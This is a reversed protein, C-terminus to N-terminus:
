DDLIGRAAALGSEIANLATRPEDAVVDGVAFLGPQSDVRFGEGVSVGVQALADMGLAQLDVGQPGSHVEVERRRLRLRVPAELSLRFSRGGKREEGSLFRVGGGVLGGVALIVHRFEHESLEAGDASFDGECFWSGTKFRVATARGTVFQISSSRLLRARSEVFREGAASGPESLTEGIPRELQQQIRQVGQQSAGLWPGCLFGSYRSPTESLQRLLEVGARGEELERTWDLDSFGAAASALDEPLAVPVPDFLTRTRKAWPSAQFSRALSAADWGSRAVDAVGVVLGALPQLDLVANDVGRTPRVVGSTTGVWAGGLPLRAGLQLLFREAMASVPTPDQRDEWEECDYAGSCFESAGGRCDLLCVDRGAEALAWAAAVGSFGGGIVLSKM